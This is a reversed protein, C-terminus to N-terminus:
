ISNQSMNIRASKVTKVGEVIDRTGDFDPSPLDPPNCLSRQETERYAIPRSFVIAIGICDAPLRWLFVPRGAVYKTMPLSQWAGTTHKTPRHERM